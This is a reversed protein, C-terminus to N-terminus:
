PTPFWPFVIIICYFYAQKTYNYAKKVATVYCIQHRDNMNMVDSKSKSLSSCYHDMISIISHGDRQLILRKNSDEM